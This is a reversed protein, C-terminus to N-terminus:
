LSQLNLKQLRELYSYLRKTWLTEEYVSPIKEIAEIYKKYLCGFLPSLNWYQDYMFKLPVAVGENSAKRIHAIYM